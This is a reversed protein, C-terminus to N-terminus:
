RAFSSRSGPSCARRTTGTAFLETLDVTALGEAVTVSRVRTSAPVYTRLGRGREARTPGAVLQRVAHLASSGPRKVPVLQEGQVFYVSIQRAPAAPAATLLGVAAFAGLFFITVRRM